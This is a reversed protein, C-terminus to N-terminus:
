PALTDQGQQGRVDPCEGYLVVAKRLSPVPLLARTSSSPPATSCQRKRGKKHSVAGLAPPPRPSCWMGQRGAGPQDRSLQAGAEHRLPVTLLKTYGQAALVSLSTQRM